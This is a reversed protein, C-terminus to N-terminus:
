RAASDARAGLADRLGAWARGFATLDGSRLASDARELWRRAEDLRTAQASGPISPASAGLLNSWAERLTRGAGLREGAAVSVWALAAGSRNWAIHSQYAVVGGPRVDLRVPGEELKGGDDGISDSLADYSAFRNWRAELASRSPVIAVTDLRVLRLGDLGSAWFVAELRREAQREYAVLRFVGATDDTWGQDTLPLDATEAVPQGGGLSGAKWQGQELQLAQARFLEVPYPSQRQVADPIAAAPEIVGHSIGAWAMALADASPRLYIHAAGSAADVTGLFGAELGGIRRGHWPLRSSLPFADTTVYGDLLWVLEGDVVRPMPDGWEIFPALRGLRETPALRWDVRLGAPLQRLLSPAQLAWALLMRRPWGGAEVGHRGAGVLRHGPALPRFSGANLELLAVPGPRPLTDGPGYFLPQGRPGVRDDAVASLALRNGPISRAALWVPRRGHAGPLVAQDVALVDVSDGAVIRRIAAANWFSPVAPPGPRESGTLREESLGELGYAKRDLREIAAPSTASTGEGGLAPPVMWHGVLSAFALVIWGAAVLAHRPRVAWAGTLVATALAVGALIPSALNTSQWSSADVSDGLGAVLEYPELLYGWLLALALGVLLWGLHVRAHTNIAPRGDIWRVAGVLMYLGFVIGLGLLVLLLLFGHALRWVPLQAVYLGLDHHQLPESVSYTVGHWALAVEPWHASSGAGILVGLLVGAGIVVALLVGPTLAERFELNAVNRRVQVSGVARYVLLLHGIFWASALLVGSLDLVLRLVHWDTLFAVAAPSIQEAWWRDTLVVAAWRGGFLLAVLGAIAVALRRGRRSV